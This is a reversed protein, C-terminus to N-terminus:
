GRLNEAYCYVKFLPSLILGNRIVCRGLECFSVWNMDDKSGSEEKWRKAHAIIASWGERGDGAENAECLWMAANKLDRISGLSLRSVVDHSYVISVILKNTLRSLAADTLASSTVLNLFPFGLPLHPFLKRLASVTSTCEVTLPFAM